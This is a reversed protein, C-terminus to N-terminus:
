LGECKGKMGEIRYGRTDYGAGLIILQEIGDSIATKVFDDFYRVRARISNDLGPWLSEYHEGIAKSKEPNKRAFEFIEPDVFHIAYPDYCICEGEPLKSEIVRHLAMLEATKSPGKGKVNAEDSNAASTSKQMSSDRRYGEFQSNILWKNITITQFRAIENGARLKKDLIWM